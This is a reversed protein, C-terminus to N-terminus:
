GDDQNVNMTTSSRASGDARSHTLADRLVNIQATWFARSVGARRLVGDFGHFAGPIELVECPVGAARLRRAYGLDEDHFLDITGIGIWAPPLGSLDTRRAPATYPSVDPGGPRAEAYVGWAYANSKPTWGRMRRSSIDSRLVTRDDLMPYVLLQFVPRVEGRDHALLALAAALGGGASGGGIAINDPDIGFRASDRYAARLGAYADEVAAPARHDPALRYRGAIVVIGLERAFAINNPEDWLPTGMIFGGGHLWFLAPAKPPLGLPRYVRLQVDPNGPLGPVTVEEIAM